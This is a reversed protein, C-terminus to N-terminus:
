EKGNFEKYIQKAGDISVLGILLTILAIILKGNIVAVLCTFINFIGLIILVYWCAKLRAKM